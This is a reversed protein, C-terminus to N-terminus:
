ANAPVEGQQSSLEVPLPETRMVALFAADDDVNGGCFEDLDADIRRVAEAPGSVDRLRERLREEGFRGSPSRAETVGDTYLVLQEDFSLEVQELEWAADDFAGLVPGEPAIESVAGASILLPPPHGAVAVSVPSRLPWNLTLAAVSCLAGGRQALLARNLQALADIPNGTMSGATRLTNRAVATLSAARAGHGTVDGIVLMWGDEIRFLDYFDGGVMNEQGAPRYLAAVSWGPMHPIPPPRLGRQLTEAIESRESAIRANELALAIWEGIREAIERDLEDFSRRDAQNAFNLTGIARSGAMLPLIMVSGVELERFRAAQREDRAEVAILPELDDAVFARGTRLVTQLGGEEALRVPYDAALARLQKARDPDQHALAVLPLTGDGAALHVSCCDALQPILLGVLQTLMAEQDISTALLEGTKALVSQAFEALKIDTVDEFVSVAYIPKGDSGKVARSRIRVWTEKGTEANVMRVIQPPGDEGRLARQPAMELRDLPEGSEDYIHNKVEGFRSAEIMEELSGHGGLEVAAQNAFVLEGNSDVIGVAEDLVAMVTDMRREVSELDTFLGANDLAVAIRDALVRAFRVDERSHRRGSWAGVLTLAGIRRGRSSLALSMFSRVGVSRLFELDEPSHAMRQLDTDRAHEVFLPELLTGEGELIHQPLSPKRAALRPELECSRPEAAKVAVREVRDDTIVDIMCLDGLEPVCLDTIRELTSAASTTGDAVEGVENLLGLRRSARRSEAVLWASYCAYISAAVMLSMRIVYDTSGFNHNWSGSAAAICVVLVAVVVTALRAGRLATLFPAAAYAGIVVVDSGLRLDLAVLTAVVAIAPILGAWDDPGGPLEIRRRSIQSDVGM